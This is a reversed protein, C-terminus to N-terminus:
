VICCPLSCCQQKPTV